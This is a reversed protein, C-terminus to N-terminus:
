EFGEEDEDVYMAGKGSKDQIEKLFEHKKILMRYLQVNSKAQAIDTDIKIRKNKTQIRMADKMRLVDSYLERWISDLIFKWRDFMGANAYAEARVWFEHLRMIQFSAENYKSVENSQYEAM